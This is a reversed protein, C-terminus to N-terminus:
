SMWLQSVSQANVFHMAIFGAEDDQMKVGLRESILRVGMEGIEYEKQYFKRIELLLTNHLVIGSKYNDVAGAIHDPLSIHISDDLTVGLSEHAAEILDESLAVIEEPIQRMIEAFRDVSNERQLAFVKDIKEKEVPDGAKRAYGIGNGFLVLENDNDDRVVVCSNNLVRSIKM